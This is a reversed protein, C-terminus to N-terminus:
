RLCVRLRINVSSGERALQYIELFDVKNISYGALFRSQERVGKKYLTALAIFIGVGLLKLIYTTYLLLCLLIIKLASCFKIAKTIIHLVYGDVKLLGWEYDNKPQTQIEFYRLL